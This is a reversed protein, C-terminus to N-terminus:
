WFKSSKGHHKARIPKRENSRREETKMKYDQVIQKTKPNAPTTKVKANITEGLSRQGENREELKEYQMEGPRQYNQSGM